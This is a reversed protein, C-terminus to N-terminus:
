AFSVHLVRQFQGPIQSWNKGADRSNFLEGTTTGFLVVDSKKDAAMACRLVGVFRPDKPLGASSEKWAKGRDDTVYTRLIGDKMYRTEQDLLPATIVRGGPTVVMPFGFNSPLGDEIPQWTDGADDSRLVGGHFQMYLSSPNAPDVVARHVCYAAEPDPSGTPLAPLTKNLATWSACGDNTRFFGVASIGIWLTKPDTPHPLITHLCLGGAGPRWHPRSPLNTLSEVERWSEGRDDSIFLAAEDVGCYIRDLNHPDAVLEWIRNVKYPQGERYRPQGAPQTWTKGNDDSIRITAGYAYHTTGVLLRGPIALTASVEWGGLSPGEVSWGKSGTESLIWLGKITGVLAQKSVDYRGNIALM